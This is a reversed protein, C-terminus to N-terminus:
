ARYRASYGGGQLEGPLSGGFRRRGAHACGLGVPYGQPKGQGAKKLHFKAKDPDYLRQELEAAHYPLVAGIPHDNGLTGHGKLIKKLASERDLAYKLALRVDNNDFPAVDTHMPMTIHTGSPVEIVEVNPDRGLLHATKLDVEIM